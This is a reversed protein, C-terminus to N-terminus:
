AVVLARSVSSYRAGYVSSLRLTGSADGFRELKILMSVGLAVDGVLVPEEDFGAVGLCLELSLVLLPSM